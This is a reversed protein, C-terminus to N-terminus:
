VNMYRETQLDIATYQELQRRIANLSLGEYYMGVANGIQESPTKMGPLSNGEIFTHHCENCLWRQKKAKTQGYRRTKKSQYHKCECPTIEKVIEEMAKVMRDIRV